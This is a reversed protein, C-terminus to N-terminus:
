GQELRPVIIDLHRGQGATPHQVIPDSELRRSSRLEARHGGSRHDCGDLRDPRQTLLVALAGLWDEDVQPVKAFRSVSCDLDVAGSWHRNFQMRTLLRRFERHRRHGLLPRAGECDSYIPMGHGFAWHGNSRHSLKCDVDQGMRMGIDTVGFDLGVDFLFLDIVEQLADGGRAPGRIIRFARPEDPIDLHEPRRVQIQM